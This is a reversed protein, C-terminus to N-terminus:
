WRLVYTLVNGRRALLEEYAAALQDAPRVHRALKEAPLRKRAILDVLFAMNEQLKRTEIKLSAEVLQGAALVSLQKEYFYRSDLPNFAAQPQGRGPFGLVVVAGGPSSGGARM